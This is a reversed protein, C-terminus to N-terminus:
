LKPLEDFWDEIIQNIGDASIPNMKGSSVGSALLAGTKVHTLEGSFIVESEPRPIVLILPVICALALPYDLGEKQRISLQGNFVAGADLLEGLKVANKTLGSQQYAQEQEVQRIKLRQIPAFGQELFNRNVASILYETFRQELNEGEIEEDFLAGSVQRTLRGFANEDNTNRVSIDTVAVVRASALLSESAHQVRVSNGCAPFVFLAILIPFVFRFIGPQRLM